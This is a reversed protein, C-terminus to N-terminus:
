FQRSVRRSRNRETRFRGMKARERFFGGYKAGAVHGYSVPRAFKDGHSSSHWRTRL